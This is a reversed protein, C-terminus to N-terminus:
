FALFTRFHVTDGVNVSDIGGFISTARWGGEINSVINFLVNSVITFFVNSVGTSILNSVITLGFKEANDKKIELYEFGYHYCFLM